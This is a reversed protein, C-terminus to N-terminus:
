RVGMFVKFFYTPERIILVVMSTSKICAMIWRAHCDLLGIKYLVMTLFESDVCHFAHKLDIKMLYSKLKKSKMLHIRQQDMSAVDHIRRNSM